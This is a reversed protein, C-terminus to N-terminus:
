NQLEKLFFDNLAKWDPTAEAPLERIGTRVTEIERALFDYLGERPEAVPQDPRTLKQQLLQAVESRFPEPMPATLERFDMPPFGRHELVYRAAMLYQATFLYLKVKVSDGQARKLHIQAMNLYYNAMSRASFYQALLHRFRQAFGEDWYVIPSNMWEWIQTNGSHLLRLTKHLDWGSLDWIDDVPLELVDRVGELRLYDARPRIYIFRVDFDSRDTATGRSRSGAEAAFLVRVGHEQEMKRLTQPVLVRMEQETM